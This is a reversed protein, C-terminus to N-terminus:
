KKAIALDTAVAGNVRNIRAVPVMKLEPLRAQVSNMSRYTAVEVEMKQQEATLDSITTEYGKIQYGLAVSSGTRLVYATSSGVLVVLLAVRMRTGTMWGPLELALFFHRVEAYQATFRRKLSM